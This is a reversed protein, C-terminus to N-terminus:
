SHAQTLSAFALRYVRIILYICERRIQIRALSALWTDWGTASEGREAGGELLASLGVM